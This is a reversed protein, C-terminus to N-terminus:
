GSSTIMAVCSTIYQGIGEEVRDGLLMMMTPSSPGRSRSVILRDWTCWFRLPDLVDASALAIIGCMVALDAILYIPQKTGDCSIEADPIIELSFFWEM